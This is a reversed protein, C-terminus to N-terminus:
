NVLFCRIAPWVIKSRVQVSVLVDEKIPFSPGRSACPGFVAECYRAQFRRSPAICKDSPMACSHLRTKSVADRSLRAAAALEGKTVRLVFSLRDPEVLGERSFVEDLFTHGTTAPM